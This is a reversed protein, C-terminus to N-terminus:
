FVKTISKQITPYPAQFEYALEVKKKRFRQLFNRLSKISSNFYFPSDSEPGYMQLLIHHIQIASHNEYLTAAYDRVFQPVCHWSWNNELNALCDVDKSSGISLEPTGAHMINNKVFEINPFVMVEKTESGVTNM